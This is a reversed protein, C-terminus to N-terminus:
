PHLAIIRLMNAIGSLTALRGAPWRGFVDALAAIIEGLTVHHEAAHLLAPM